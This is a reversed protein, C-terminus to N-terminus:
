YNVYTVTHPHHTDVYTSIYTHLSLLMCYLMVNFALKPACATQPHKYTYMVDVTIHQIHTLAELSTNTYGDINRNECGGVKGKDGTEETLLRARRKHSVVGVGRERLTPRTHVNDSPGSACIHHIHYHYEARTLSLTFM